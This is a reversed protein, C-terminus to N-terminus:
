PHPPFISDVADPIVTLVFSTSALKFRVRRANGEKGYFLTFDSDPLPLTGQCFPPKKVITGKLYRLQNRTLSSLKSEKQKSMTCSPVVLSNPLVISKVSKRASKIQLM